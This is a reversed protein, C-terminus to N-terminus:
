GPLSSPFWTAVCVSRQDAQKLCIRDTQDMQDIPRNIQNCENLRFGSLGFLGFSCSLSTAKKLTM